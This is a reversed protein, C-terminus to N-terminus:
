RGDKVGAVVRWLESLEALIATGAEREEMM